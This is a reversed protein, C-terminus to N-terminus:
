QVSQCSYLQISWYLVTLWDIVCHWEYFVVACGTALDVLFLKLFVFFVNFFVFSSQLFFSYALMTCLCAGLVFLRISTMTLFYCYRKTRTHVRPLIQSSTLRSTIATFRPPPLLSHLCSAPDMVRDRWPQTCMNLVCRDVTVRWSWLKSKNLVQRVLPKQVTAHCYNALNGSVRRM